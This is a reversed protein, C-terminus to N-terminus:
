SKKELYIAIRSALKQGVAEKSLTPWDEITESDIVHVTNDRGGFTGTEPSVDNAVIWDCGKKALKAQAHAVVEETEAAFGIVLAPRSKGKQSIKALIDPNEVLDLTPLTGNKKIKEQPPNAVRWDAVAAACVVIDAPLAAECAALMDEASKVHTVTVGEPDPLQTPGSVLVTEAGEAALAKAIAHGQRGSSHNALYRVPDIAEHTPGSTVIAKKGALKKDSRQGINEHAELFFSEIAEAITEPEAMRGMGYEGCAMDGEEPGIIQVGRDQLVSMNEQTAAHEWMRVNMSPAVFVPKDTALLATTALDDALGARMKALVNATAPAVVLLGADRSLEIHGMENEDTLSFLDQYVKDETLTALSLPTVFQSGADTLICRVAIDRRRLDRILELSKYAAIGGSIILLVRKGVEM